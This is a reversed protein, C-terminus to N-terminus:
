RMGAGRLGILLDRLGDAGLRRSRAYRGGRRRSRRSVRSWVPMNNTWAGAPHPLVAAM